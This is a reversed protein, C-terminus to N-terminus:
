KQFARIIRQRLEPHWFIFNDLQKENVWAYETHEYSLVINANNSIRGFFFVGYYPIEDHIWNDVELIGTIEFDNTGIEEKVERKLGDIWKEKQNLRGGPLLWKGSKRHKLILVENKKNKLVIDQSIKCLCHEQKM